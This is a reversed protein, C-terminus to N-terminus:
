KKAAVPRVQSRNVVVLKIGRRCGEMTFMEVPEVRGKVIVVKRDNGAPRSIRDFIAENEGGPGRVWVELRRGHGDHIVFKEYPLRPYNRRDFINAPDLYGWVTVASHDCDQSRGCDAPLSCRRFLQELSLSDTRCLGDHRCMMLCGAVLLVAVTRLVLGATNTVM